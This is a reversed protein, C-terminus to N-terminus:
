DHAIAYNLSNAMYPMGIPNSFSINNSYQISVKNDMAGKKIIILIVGYAAWVGYIASAAADKLVTFSEIDSPNILNMDTPVGDVLVYPSDDGTLSGIGRINFTM